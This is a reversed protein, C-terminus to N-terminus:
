SINLNKPIWAELQQSWSLVGLSTIIKVVSQFLGLEELEM